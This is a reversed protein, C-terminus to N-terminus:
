ITSVQNTFDLSSEASVRFGQGRIRGHASKIAASYESRSLQQIQYHHMDLFKNLANIEDAYLTPSVWEGRIDARSYLARVVEDAQQWFEALGRVVGQREIAPAMDVHGALVAWHDNGGHGECFAAAATRMTRMVDNIDAPAPKSVNNAAIVLTSATPHWRVRRPKQASM